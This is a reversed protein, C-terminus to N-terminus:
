AAAPAVRPAPRRTEATTARRGRLASAAAVLGDIGLAQAQQARHPVLDRVPFRYGAAALDDDDYSTLVTVALLRLHSGAAGEKAAAMTQPFAHVTLFTAGRGAIQATARKVTNPIDHLKLDLFIKKGQAALDEALAFGEGGYALEMGIKYFSVSDGLRTVLARAAAVEPVDLAVILRDSPKVGSM